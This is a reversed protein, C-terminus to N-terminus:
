ERSQFITMALAFAGFCDGVQQLQSQKTTVSRAIVRNPWQSVRVLFGQASGISEQLVGSTRPRVEWEKWFAKM